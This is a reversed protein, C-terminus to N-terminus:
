RREFSTGIGYDLGGVFLHMALRLGGQVYVVMVSLSFSRSSTMVMWWVGCMFKISCQINM